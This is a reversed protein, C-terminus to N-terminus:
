EGDEQNDALARLYDIVEKNGVRILIMNPDVRGDATTAILNSSFVRDLADIVIKGNPSNFFTRAAIAAPGLVRQRYEQVESAKM